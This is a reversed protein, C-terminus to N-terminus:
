KEAPPRLTYDPPVVLPQNEKILTEDPANYIASKKTCGVVCVGMLLCLIIKKM